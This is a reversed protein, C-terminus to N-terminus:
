GPTCIVEISEIEGFFFLLISSLKYAALGMFVASKVISLGITSLVKNRFKIVDSLAIDINLARHCQNEGCGLKLSKTRCNHINLPDFCNLSPKTM